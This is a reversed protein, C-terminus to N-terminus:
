ADGIVLIFQIKCHFACYKPHNLKQRFGLSQSKHDPIGKKTIVQAKQMNCTKGKPKYLTKKVNEQL